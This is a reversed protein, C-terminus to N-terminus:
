DKGEHNALACLPQWHRMVNCRSRELKPMAWSMRLMQRQDRARMAAGPDSLVFSSISPILSAIALLRSGYTISSLFAEDVSVIVESAIINTCLCWTKNAGM